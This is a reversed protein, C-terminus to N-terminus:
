QGRMRRLGALISRATESEVTNLEAAQRLYKEASARDGGELAIEGAQSFLRADRIGVALAREIM